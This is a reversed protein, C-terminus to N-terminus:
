SPFAILTLIVLSHHDQPCSLVCLFHPPGLAEEAYVSGGESARCPLGASLAVLCPCGSEGQHLLTWPAQDAPPSPATILVKSQQLLSLLHFM